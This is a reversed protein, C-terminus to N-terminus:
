GAVHLIIRQRFRTGDAATATLRLEWKGPDLQVPAVHAAGDFTLTPNVDHDRVTTRGVMVAIEPPNVPQGDPGTIALRLRGDEVQADIDWGLAEQAVRDTDFTQSAVYSNQTELGPFTGVAQVAMTVNVAIIVGFFAATIFFVKRGTLPKASM